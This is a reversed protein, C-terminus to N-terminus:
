LFAPAVVVPRSARQSRYSAPRSVILDLAAVRIQVQRGLARSMEQRYRIAREFLSRAEGEELQMGLMIRVIEAYPERTVRAKDLVLRELEADGQIRDFVDDRILQWATASPPTSTPPTSSPALSVAM